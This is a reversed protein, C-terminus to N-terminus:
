ILRLLIISIHVFILSLSPYFWKTNRLMKLLWCLLSFTIIGLVSRMSRSLLFSPFIISNFTLFDSLIHNEVLIFWLNRWGLDLFLLGHFLLLMNDFLSIQRRIISNSIIRTNMILFLLGLHTYTCSCENLIHIWRKIEIQWTHAVIHSKM